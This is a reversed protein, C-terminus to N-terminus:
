SELYSKVADWQERTAAVHVQHGYENGKHHRVIVDLLHTENQIDAIDAILAAMGAVLDLGLNHPDYKIADKGDPHEGTYKWYRAHILKDTM